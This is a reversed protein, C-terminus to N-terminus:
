ATTRQRRITMVVVIILVPIFPRLRLVLTALRGRGGGNNNSPKLRQVLRKLPSPSSQQGGKAASFLLPPTRLAPAIPKRLSTAAPSFAHTTTALLVFAALKIGVMKSPRRPAHPARTIAVESKRWTEHGIRPDLLRKGHCCNARQVDEICVCASLFAASSAARDGLSRRQGDAQDVDVGLVLADLSKFEM